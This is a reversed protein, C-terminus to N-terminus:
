GKRSVSNKQDKRRENLRQLSRILSSTKELEELGAITTGGPSTVRNKLEEPHLDPDKGREEMLLSAAGLVTHISLELSQSYTLGSAVGGEALSQIFRFVYAPGSGSLGTVSDLLEEKSVELCYSIPSFIERVTAYLEPDGFYGLAGKEVLIPLNPMIRVISSGKPSSNRM